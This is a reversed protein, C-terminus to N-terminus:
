GDTFTSSTLDIQNPLSGSKPDSPFHELDHNMIILVREERVGSSCQNKQSAEHRM